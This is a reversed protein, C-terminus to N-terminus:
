PMPGALAREIAREVELLSGNYARVYTILTDVRMAYHGREHQSVYRPDVGLLEAAQRGTLGARERMSRLEVGVAEAVVARLREGVVHTRSHLEPQPHVDAADRPAFM